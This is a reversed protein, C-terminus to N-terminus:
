KKLYIKLNASPIVRYWSSMYLKDKRVYVSLPNARAFLNMVSVTFDYAKARFLKGSHKYSLDFRKYAPMRANNANGIVYYGAYFDTQKVKGLPMTFPRGSQYIYNFAWSNKANRFYNLGSNLDHRRDFDSNYWNGQNLTEFKRKSFAFTYAISWQVKGQSKSLLVETGYSKGKGNNTIQDWFVLQSNDEYNFHLLNDM